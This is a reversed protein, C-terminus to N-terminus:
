FCLFINIYYKIYIVKEKTVAYKSNSLELNPTILFFDFIKFTGLKSADKNEQELEPTNRNEKNHIARPLLNLRKIEREKAREVIAIADKMAKKDFDQDKRWDKLNDDLYDRVEDYCKSSGKGKLAKKLDSLKTADKNEQELEPTNRNEKKCKRPLLNLENKIRENAREVIAIAGEM